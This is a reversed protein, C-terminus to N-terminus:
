QRVQASAPRGAGLPTLRWGTDCRRVLGHVLLVPLSQQVLLVPVGAARAITAEGAGGRVPVAELVSRVAVPLDDHARAQGRPEALSGEGPAGVLALVEGADSVLHAGGRILVHCGTSLASTVPGPVAMVHRDLDAARNATSLSGSRAAAEVVVVGRSLAAILRNRVLFRVRTPSAGPPHESVILGEAAIRALLRDNGRPYAVDVGCALVAVTAVSRAGSLGANSSGAGTPRADLAARHAAADIGYAGGSIVTWGQEALELSLTSTVYTGYATAARAGVVAVSRETTEALRGPGRVQLFLPPAALQPCVPGWSLRASPWEDDGPVLLRGGAAHLRDLEVAADYGLARGRAGEALAPSVGPLPDAARLRDRVYGAGHLQVAQHVPWSGPEVLRGIEMRALRDADRAPVDRGLARDPTGTM